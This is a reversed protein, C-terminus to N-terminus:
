LLPTRPVKTGATAFLSDDCEKCWDGFGCKGIEPLREHVDCNVCPPRVIRMDREGTFLYDLNLSQHCYHTDPVYTQWMWKIRHLPLEAKLKYIPHGVICDFEESYTPNHLRRLKTIKSHPKMFARLKKVDSDMEAIFWYTYLPM